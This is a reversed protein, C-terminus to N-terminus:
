LGTGDLPDHLEDDITTDLDARVEDWDIAPATAFVSQAEATPVFRRRKIPKVEALPEGNLTLVYRKGERLGRTVSGSDNVFQRM